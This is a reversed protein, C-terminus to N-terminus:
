DETGSEVTENLQDATDNETEDATEPVPEAEADQSASEAVPVNFDKELRFTNYRLVSEKFRVIREIERLIDNNGM